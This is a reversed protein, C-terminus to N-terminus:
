EQELTLIRQMDAPNSSAALMVEETIKDERMLQLLHQDFSQSGYVAGSKELYDRLGGMKEPQKIMDQVTLTTVMVEAALVRGKGSKHPLLRQSITAKLIEALRLRTPYQAEPPFAGIIRSVTRMADTTHVTSLVLHGTEAAKIAIDITEMDRMEGVLIVDPDQRLAARLASSFSPTDLGVERQSIRSLKDPHIFEIPDEITLIHLKQRENMYNTMAALTSSKGSGAVGTVLILGREESAIKEVVAPCGLSEFTPIDFPIVRLIAALHGRQRFLSVRFRAVGEIRYSTDWEQLTDVTGKYHGQSMIHQAVRDMDDSALSPCKVPIMAGNVRVAPSSDTKFHIDSAGNKAAASLLRNFTAQDM